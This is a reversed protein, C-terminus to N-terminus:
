KGGETPQERRAAPAWAGHRGSDYHTELCQPCLGHSFEARSRGAVYAEIAVWRHGERVRKCHMCISILGELYQVRRGLTRVKLLTFAVVALAVALEALEWAHRAGESLGVALAVADDAFLVGVLVIFALLVHRQIDGIILAHSSADKV